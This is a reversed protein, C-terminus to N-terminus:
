FPVVPIWLSIYMYNKISRNILEHNALPNIWMWWDYLTCMRVSYVNVLRWWSFTPLEAAPPAHLDCRPPKRLDSRSGRCGGWECVRPRSPPSIRLPFCPFVRSNFLTLSLHFCSINPLTFKSSLTLYISHNSSFIPINDAWSKDM